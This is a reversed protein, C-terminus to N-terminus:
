LRSALDLEAEELRNLVRNLLVKKMNIEGGVLLPMEEMMRRVEAVDHNTAIGHFEVPKATPNPKIGYHEMLVENRGMAHRGRLHELNKSM